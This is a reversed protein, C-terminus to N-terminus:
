PYLENNRYCTHVCTSLANIAQPHIVDTEFIDIEAANVFQPKHGRWTWFAYGVGQKYTMKIKAEIYGYQVDYDTKTEVWGSTYNFSAGSSCCGGCATSPCPIGTQCNTANSNTRIVFNGNAVWVNSELHIYPKPPNNGHACYNARIWKASDFSSFDDQWKLQWNLDNPYISPQTFAINYILLCGVILIIIKNM